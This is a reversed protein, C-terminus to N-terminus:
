PLKPKIGFHVVLSTQLQEITYPKNLVASNEVFLAKMGDTVAQGTTYLVRLDPHREVAQKALDLGAQIDDKLVIDTFLIDVDKAVDLAALAEAATSATLTRHGQEKLCSEALVRVQDDDEVVLVLAM